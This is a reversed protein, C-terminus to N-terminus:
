SIYLLMSRKGIHGLTGREVGDFGRVEGEYREAQGGWEWLHFPLVGPVRRHGDDDSHNADYRNDGQHSYCNQLM